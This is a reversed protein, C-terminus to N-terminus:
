NSHTDDEWHSHGEFVNGLWSVNFVPFDRKIEIHFFCRTVPFATADYSPMQAYKKEAWTADNATGPWSWKDCVAESCEYFYSIGLNKTALINHVDPNPANGYKGTSGPRDYAASYNNTDTTLLIRPDWQDPAVNKNTDAACRYVGVANLYQPYLTSLWPSMKENNDDRYMLLATAIQKLNGKCETARAKDRAKNLVPLLLGALIAIIAIVVLLEILTFGPQRGIRRGEDAAQHKM